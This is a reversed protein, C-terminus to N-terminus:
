KNKKTKKDYFNLLNFNRLSILNEFNFKKQCSPFININILQNYFNNVEGDISRSCMSNSIQNMPWYVAKKFLTPIPDIFIELIIRNSTIDWVTIISESFESFFPVEISCPILSQLDNKLINRITYFYRFIFPLFFSFDISNLNEPSFRLNSIFNGILKPLNTIKFFIKLSKEFFESNKFHKLNFYLNSINKENSKIGYLFKKLKISFSSSIKNFFFYLKDKKLYFSSISNSNELRFLEFSFDLKLFYSNFKYIFIKDSYILLFKEKEDKANEIFIKRHSM